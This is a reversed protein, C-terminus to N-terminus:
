QGNSPQPRDHGTRDRITAVILPISIVACVGADTSAVERVSQHVAAHTEDAHIASASLRLYRDFDSFALAIPEDDGTLVMWGPADFDSRYGLISALGFVPVIGGRIGALGLLHPAAAPLSVIARKAVMETIERLRIAYPDGAVRIKIFDEVAEALKGPPLAFSQDFRRKLEAVNQDISQIETV